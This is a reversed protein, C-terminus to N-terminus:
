VKEKVRKLNRALQLIETESLDTIKRISKLDTGSYILQVAQYKKISHRIHQRLEQLNKKFEINIDPTQMSYTIFDNARYFDTKAICAQIFFKIDEINTTETYELASNLIELTNDPMKELDKEYIKKCSNIYDSIITESNKTEKMDDIVNFCKKQLKLFENEQEVKERAIDLDEDTIGLIKIMEEEVNQNNKVMNLVYNSKALQLNSDNKIKEKLEDELLNSSALIDTYTSGNELMTQIRESQKAEFKPKNEKNGSVSLIRFTDNEGSICAKYYVQRSVELIKMAFESESLVTRTNEYIKKFFQPTINQRYYLLHKDVIKSKLTAIYADSLKLNAFIKTKRDKKEKIINFNSNTIYLIKEAFQYESLKKGYKQYLNKFEDYDIMDSTNYGSNRFVDKKIEDILEKDLKENRLIITNDKEDRLICNLRVEKIDLIKDAFDKKSMGFGYKDYLKTFTKGSISDEIHLNNEEIVINRLKKIDIRNYQDSVTSLIRTRTCTGRKLCGFQVKPIDLTKTAFDTDWVVFGYKKYLELFEDYSISLGNYVNENEIIEEKQKIFFDSPIDIDTLIGSTFVGEKLKKYSSLPIDLIETAFMRESLIGSYKEFLKKFEQYDIIKDRIHLNEEQVINERLKLLYELTVNENNWIQASDIKKNIISRAKGESLGLIKRAFEYNTYNNKGYIEYLEIFENSTISDGIHLNRDLAITDKLNQVKKNKEVQLKKIKKSLQPIPEELFYNEETNNFITAKKSSNNKITSLSHSSIDLIKEAFLVLPLITETNNYLEEVEEYSLSQGNKLNQERIMKLKLSIIESDSIEENKLIKCRNKKLSYLDNISLDLFSSAFESESLEQGYLQHLKLFQEYDILDNIHFKEKKIMEKRLKKRNRKIVSKKKEISFIM